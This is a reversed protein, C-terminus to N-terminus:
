LVGCCCCYIKKSEGRKLYCGRGRGGGDKEGGRDFVVGGDGWCFLLVMLYNFLWRWGWLGYCGDM